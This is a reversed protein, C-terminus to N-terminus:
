DRSFTQDFEYEKGAAIKHEMTQVGVMKGDPDVVATTLKTLAAQTGQNCVRTRVRIKCRGDSVEPTTVCTGCEAFHVPNCVSLWVHRYIGAGSYWRSCPQRVNCRVALVNENEGFKLHPTLEYQFSTYGYPRNGLHHGNLWVDSDMYVGDFRVFVNCGRAAEPLTFTKRYWGVGGNLYGGGAGAPSTRDFPGEIMWDHPVDLQRWAAADFAPAQAGDVDGLHFRWDSDFSTVESSQLSGESAAGHIAACVPSFMLTLVIAAIRSTCKRM